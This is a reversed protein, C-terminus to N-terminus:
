RPEFALLVRHGGGEPLDAERRDILSWANWASRHKATALEEDVGPGKYLILMSMRKAVPKLKAQIEAVQGVARAVVLDVNQDQLWVEGRARVVTIRSPLSTQQVLRDLAQAKRERSEVLVVERDPSALGLPVGPFGGGSGLDVLRGQNQANLLPLALLSDLVHRIAMGKPDTIGTLNIEKNEDHLASCFQALSDWIHSESPLSLSPTLGWAAIAQDLHERVEAAFEQSDMRFDEDHPLPLGLILATSQSM